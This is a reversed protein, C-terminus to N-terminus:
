AGRRRRTRTSLLGIWLGGALLAGLAGPEPVQVADLDAALWDADAASADYVLTWVSGDWGLVDEDAFGVGGVQGSTDLSVLFAGGGQDQAADVDLAGDLGAASGDFVLTFGAGSEYRVLDEDAAVIGGISVTTDFSLLLGRPALSVADVVAGGPVGVASVDLETTYTAGDFRMVDGRGAVVGGPLSTTTDLVFLRDGDAALGYAVVDAAPPLPGLNELAVLGLQNDLAVDEDATALGAAGLAIQVDPSAAVLAQAGATSTSLLAVLLGLIRIAPM